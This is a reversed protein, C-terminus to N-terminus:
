GDFDSSPFGPEAITTIGNQLLLESMTSLGKLYSTPELLFPAMKPVLALWGGEYFHGKSWEVQPNGTFDSERIGM